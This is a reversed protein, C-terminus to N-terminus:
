APTMPKRKGLRVPTNVTNKGVIEWASAAAARRRSCSGAVNIALKAAEEPNEMALNVLRRACTRLGTNTAVQGRTAAQQLPDVVRGPLRRQALRYARVAVARVRQRGWRLAKVPAVVIRVLLHGLRFSQSELTRSLRRSPTAMGTLQPEAAAIGRAETAAGM